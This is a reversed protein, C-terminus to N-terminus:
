GNDDTVSTSIKVNPVIEEPKFYIEYHYPDSKAPVTQLAFWTVNDSKGLYDKVFQDPGVKCTVALTDNLDSSEDVSCRGNVEAIYKDTIGNYFVIQRSIKFYEADQSINQSVTDSQSTCGTLATGAILVAAAIGIIKKM